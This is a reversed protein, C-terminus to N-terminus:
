VHYITKTLAPLEYKRLTDKFADVTFPPMKNAKGDAPAKLELQHKAKRLVSYYDANTSCLLQATDSNVGQAEMMAQFKSLAAGGVVAESIQKRGESLDSVLGTMVLLLGGVFM